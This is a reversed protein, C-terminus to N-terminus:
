NSAKVYLALTLQINPELAESGDTNHALDKYHITKIRIYYPLAEISEIFDVMKKKSGYFDVAFELTEKTADLTRLNLDLNQMQGLNELTAIFDIFETESNPRLTNVFEIAGQTNQTYMILSQEFDSQVTSAMSLFKKLHVNEHHINHASYSLATTIFASLFILLASLQLTKNFWNNSPTTEM